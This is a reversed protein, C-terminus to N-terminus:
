ETASPPREAATWQGKPAGPRNSRLIDMVEPVSGAVSYLERAKAKIFNQEIGHELMALLPAYYNATNLLVIPKAHYGLQKHVMVDFIEELTGIGGPLAIIADGRQELMAKRDRMGLSVVLEDCVDDGIGKDIFLQPTIGVVKGGAARVADALKGMVGIRNGGYILGWGAKAIATGLEIAADVYVQPVKGSSACYVTVNRISSM